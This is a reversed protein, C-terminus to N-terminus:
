GAPRWADRYGPRDAKGAALERLALESEFESGAFWTWSSQTGDVVPAHRRYLRREEETDLNGDLWSLLDLMVVGYSQPIHV